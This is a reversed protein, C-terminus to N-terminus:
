RTAALFARHCEPGFGKARSEDVTLASGCAACVAFHRGFNEAYQRARNRLLKFIATKTKSPVYKEKFDGPHGILQTLNPWETNTYNVELFLITSGESLIKKADEDLDHIPIAARFVTSAM